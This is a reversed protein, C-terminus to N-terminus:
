DVVRLVVQSGDDHASSDDTRSYLSTDESEDWESTTFETARMDTPGESTNTENTESPQTEAGAGEAVAKLIQASMETQRQLMHLLETVNLAADGKGILNDPVRVSNPRFVNYTDRLIRPVDESKDLRSEVADIVQRAYAPVTSRMSRIGEVSNSNSPIATISYEVLKNRKLEIVGDDLPNAELNYFGVSGGRLFGSGVLRYVDRALEIDDSFQIAGRLRKGKGRKKDKWVHTGRGIPLTGQEHDSLGHHFLVVPNRIFTDLDWGDVRLITRYSDISEDSMTYVRTRETFKIGLRDADEPSIGKREQYITRRAFEM